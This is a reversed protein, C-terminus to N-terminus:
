IKCGMCKKCKPCIIHPICSPGIGVTYEENEQKTTDYPEGCHPCDWQKLRERQFPSKVKSSKNKPILLGNKMHWLTM